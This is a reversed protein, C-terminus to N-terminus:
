GVIGLREKRDIHMEGVRKTFGIRRCEHAGHELLNTRLECDRDSERQALKFICSSSQTYADSGDQM